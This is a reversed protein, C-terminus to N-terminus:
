SGYIVLTYNATNGIPGIVIGDLGGQETEAVVPSNESAFAFMSGSAENISCRSSCSFVLREVNTMSVLTGAADRYTTGAPDITIAATGVTGTIIAVKGNAHSKAQSLSVVNIANTGDKDHFLADVIIRGEVSM